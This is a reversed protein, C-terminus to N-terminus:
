ASKLEHNTWVNKVYHESILILCYRAEESYVKSLHEYLNKGWLQAKFYEDFFVDVGQKIFSDALKKALLRDEGVFSIAVDYNFKKLKSMKDIITM